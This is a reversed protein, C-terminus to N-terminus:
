WKVIEKKLFSGIGKKCDDSGRAKANMESAFQMASHLDKNYLNSILQKTSVLAMKSCKDILMSCIEEVSNVLEKAPVVKNIMGISQAEKASIISGTLLLERTKAEGVKRLLFYSVIAPIFGIRVETYGFSADDVAVSFDCVSALGSGGAIAHGQIAAIVVKPGEYILKFLEALSSSDELNEEYSNSQLQELYALDAGASFVKGKARLVIVKCDDDGYAKIFASKLETVVVDNLANRKEERAITIYAKKEKVLYEVWKM